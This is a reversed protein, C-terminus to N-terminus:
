PTMIWVAAFLGVSVITAAVTVAVDHLARWIRGSDFANRKLRLRLRSQEHQM